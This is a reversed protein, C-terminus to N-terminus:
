SESSSRVIVLSGKAGPISGKLFILNKEPLIRLVSLNKVTVRSNGYHGPMRQGKFVKGPTLREGIAGVRRHWQGAGHSKDGGSFSWRKMAGSFGRGKSFATVDVHEDEKFIGVTLTDGTKYSTPTFRFGRIIKLPPLNARKFRGLAAKNLNKEPVVEYGIELLEGQEGIVYCPGASIVTAGVVTGSSAYLRTMGIKRGLIWKM